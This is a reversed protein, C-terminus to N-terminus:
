MGLTDNSFNDHDGIYVKSPYKSMINGFVKPLTHNQTAQGAPRHAPAAFPKSIPSPVKQQTDIAGWM